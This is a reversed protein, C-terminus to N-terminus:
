QVGVQAIVSLSDVIRRFSEAIDILVKIEASKLSETVTWNGTEEACKLDIKGSELYDM